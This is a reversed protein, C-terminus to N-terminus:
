DRLTPNQLESSINLIFWKFGYVKRWFRELDATLSIRFHGSEPGGVPTNEARVKEEGFREVNERAAVSEVGVAQSLGDKRM